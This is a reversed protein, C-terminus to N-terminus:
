GRGHGVEGLVLDALPHDVLAADLDAGHVVHAVAVEVDLDIGVVLVLRDFLQAPFTRDVLFAVVKALLEDRVDGVLRNPERHLSSKAFTNVRVLAPRRNLM